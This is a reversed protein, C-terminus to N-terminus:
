RAPNGPGNMRGKAAEIGFLWGTSNIGGIAEGCRSERERKQWERRQVFRKREESERQLRPEPLRYCLFWFGQFDTGCRNGVPAEGQRQGLRKAPVVGPPLRYI